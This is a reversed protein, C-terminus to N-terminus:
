GPKLRPACVRCGPDRALPQWTPAVSERLDIVVRGSAAHPPEIGSLHRRAEFAILSGLLTATPGTLRAATARHDPRTEDDCALCATEGPVVSQYTVQFRTGGGVIFPTGVRVAAENLWTGADPHGGVCGAVLDVGAVLDALDGPDSIRREVERVEIGPDFERVWAATHGIDEVDGVDEVLTLRGIGLGALCRVVASGADAVGSGVGLALVRAEHLRRVFATPPDANEILGLADLGDLDLRVGTETVDLGCRALSAALEAPTQPARSLESLLAAIRGSRDSLTIVECGDYLVEVDDEFTEWVCEKLTVRV